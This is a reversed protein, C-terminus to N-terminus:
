PQSGRASAEEEAAFWAAVESQRYVVRGGRLFSRPGRDHHRWDKLTNVPVNFEDSVQRQTLVREAKPATPRPAM